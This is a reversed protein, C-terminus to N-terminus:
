MKRRTANVRGKVYAGSAPFQNRDLTTPPEYQGPTGPEGMYPNITADGAVNKNGGPSDSYVGKYIQSPYDNGTLRDYVPGGDAYGKIKPNSCTHFHQKAM